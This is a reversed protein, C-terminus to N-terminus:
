PRDRRGPPSAAPLRGRYELHLGTLRDSEWLPETDGIWERGSACGVRDGLGVLFACRLRLGDGVPEVGACEGLRRGRVCGLLVVVVGDGIPAIRDQQTLGSRQGISLRPTDSDTSRAEVPKVHREEFAELQREALRGKFKACIADVNHISWGKTIRAGADCSAVCAPDIRGSEAPDYRISARNLDCPAERELEAGCLAFRELSLPM